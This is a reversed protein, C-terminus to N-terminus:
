RCIGQVHYMLELHSHSSLTVFLYARSDPTCSPLASLSYGRGIHLPPHKPLFTPSITKVCHELCPSSTKGCFSRRSIMDDDCFCKGSLDFGTRLLWCINPVLNVHKFAWFLGLHGCRCSSNGRIHRAGKPLKRWCKTESHHQLCFM